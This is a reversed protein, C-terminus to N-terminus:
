VGCKLIERSEKLLRSIMRRDEIAKKTRLGHKLANQNGKPAGTSMGGHYYCVRKKPMAIQRCRRGTQKSKAQCQRDEHPQKNNKGEM